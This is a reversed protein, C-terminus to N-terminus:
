SVRVLSFRKALGHKCAGRVPPNRDLKRAPDAAGRCSSLLRYGADHENMIKNYTAVAPRIVLPTRPARNSGRGPAGPPPRCRHGSEPRGPRSPGAARLREPATRGPCPRPAPRRPFDGVHKLRLGIVTAVDITFQTSGSSRVSSIGGNTTQPFGHPFLLDAM